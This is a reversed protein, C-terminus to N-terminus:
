PQGGGGCGDGSAMHHEMGLLLCVRVGRSVDLFPYYMSIMLRRALAAPLGESSGRRLPSVWLGVTDTCM